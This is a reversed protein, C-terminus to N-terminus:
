ARGGDEADAGCFPCPQGLAAVTSSWAATCSGCRETFLRVSPANQPREPQGEPDDDSEGLGDLSRTRPGPKDGNSVPVQSTIFPDGTRIRADAQSELALDQSGADPM